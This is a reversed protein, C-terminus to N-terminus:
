KALNKEPSFVASLGSKGSPKKYFHKGSSNVALLSQKQDLNTLFDNLIAFGDYKRGPGKSTVIPTIAM